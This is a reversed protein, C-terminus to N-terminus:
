KGQQTNQTEVNTGELSHQQQKFPIKLNKYRPLIGTVLMQTCTHIEEPNNIFEYHLEIIKNKQTICFV